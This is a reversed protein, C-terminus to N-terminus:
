LAAPTVSETFIPPLLVPPNFIHFQGVVLAARHIDALLLEYIEVYLM